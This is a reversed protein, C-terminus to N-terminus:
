NEKHKIITKRNKMIPFLILLRKSKKEYKIHTEKERRTVILDIIPISTVQAISLHSTIYISPSM